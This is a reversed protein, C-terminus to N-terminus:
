KRTKYQGDCLSLPDKRCIKKQFACLGALLKSSIPKFLTQLNFGATQTAAPTRWTNWTLICNSWPLLNWLWLEAM